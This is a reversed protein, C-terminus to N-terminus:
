FRIQRMFNEIMGLQRDEHPLYSGITMIIMDEDQPEYYIALPMGFRQMPMLLISRVAGEQIVSFTRFRGYAYFKPGVHVGTGDVAYELVRPPRAAFIGFIVGVIGVVVCSVLERTVLFTLLVMVAIGLALLAYWSLGKGHAIYESATWKVAGTTPATHPAVGAPDDASFQWAAEPTHAPPAPPAPPQEIPKPPPPPPALQGTPPESPAPAQGGPTITEGPQMLTNYM